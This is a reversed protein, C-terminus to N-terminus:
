VSVHYPCEHLWPIQTKLFDIIYKAFVSEISQGSNKMLACFDFRNDVLFPKYNTYKYNLTFWFAIFREPKLFSFSIDCSNPKNRFLKAKCLHITTHNSNTFCVTRTLKVQFQKNGVDEITPAPFDLSLVSLLSVILFVGAGNWFMISNSINM